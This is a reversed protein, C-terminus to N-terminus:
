KLTAAVNGCGEPDACIYSATIRFLAGVEIRQKPMEATIRENEVRLVPECVGDEGTDQERIIQWNGGVCRKLGDTCVGYIRQEMGDTCNCGEDIEGDCNNDEGDCSEEIDGFHAEDGIGDCNNDIYDCIEEASNYRYPNYDDCDGEGKLGFLGLRIGIGCAMSQIENMEDPVYGDRDIDCGRGCGDNVEINCNDDIDNSCVERADMHVRADDDNCDYKEASYPSYGDGDEDVFGTECMCYLSYDSPSSYQSSDGIVTNLCTNDAIRSGMYDCYMEIPVASAACDPHGQIIEKIRCSHEIYKGEECRDNGGEPFDILAGGITCTDEPCEKARDELIRDSPINCAAINEAIGCREICLADPNGSDVPPCYFNEGENSSHTKQACSCGSLDIIAGEQTDPCKDRPCGAIFSGDERPECYGDFDADIIQRRSGSTQASVHFLAVLFVVLLGMLIQSKMRM